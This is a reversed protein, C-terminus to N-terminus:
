VPLESALVTYSAITLPWKTDPDEATVGGASVDVKHLLVGGAKRRSLTKFAALVDLHLQWSDAFTAAFCDADVRTDGLQLTGRGYIGYGGAPRLVITPIPMVANQTPPLKPWYVRTGVRTTVAGNAKLYAGLGDLPNVAM